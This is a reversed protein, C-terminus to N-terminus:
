FCLHSFPHRARTPACHGRRVSASRSPPAALTAPTPSLGRTRARSCAHSSMFSGASAGGPPFVGRLATGRSATASRRRARSPRPLRFTFPPEKGGSSHTRTRPHVVLERTRSNVPCVHKHARWRQPWLPPAVILPFLRSRFPLVRPTSPLPVQLFRYGLRARHGADCLAHAATRRCEPVRHRACL